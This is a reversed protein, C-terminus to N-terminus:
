QIRCNEQQQANQNNKTAIKDDLYSGVAPVINDFLYQTDVTLKVTDRNILEVNKIFGPFQDNYYTEFQKRDSKTLYLIFDTSGDFNRTCTCKANTQITSIGAM